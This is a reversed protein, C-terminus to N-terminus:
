RHVVVSISRVIRGTASANREIRVTGSIILGNSHVLLPAYGQWALEGPPISQEATALDVQLVRGTIAVAGAQLGYATDFTLAQGTLTLAGSPTIIAAPSAVNPDRGTYVLSGVPVPLVFDIQLQPVLATQGWRLSGAPIAIGISDAAGGISPALGQWVLSGAQLPSFAIRVYQGSLVLSGAPTAIAYGALRDPTQGAFVLSGAPIGLASGPTDEQVLLVRGTFGIAGCGPQPVAQPRAPGKIVLQGAPIEVGVDGVRVTPALGQYTLAGVGNSITGAATISLSPTLGAWQLVGVPQELPNVNANGTFTLAGVPTSIAIALTLALGTYTLSSVSSHWLSVSTPSQPGKLTVHGAPVAIEPM